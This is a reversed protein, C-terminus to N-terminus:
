QPRSSWAGEQHKRGRKMNGNESSDQPLPAGMLNCSLTITTVPEVRPMPLAIARAQARSPADTTIEEREASATWFVTSAIFACPKPAEPIVQSTVTGPASPSNSRYATAVKPFTSTHILLAPRELPYRGSSSIFGSSIEWTTAVLTVASAVPHLMTMGHIRACPPPITMLMLPRPPLPSGLGQVASYAAGLAATVLRVRLRAASFLLPLTEMWATM